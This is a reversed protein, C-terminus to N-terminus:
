NIQNIIVDIWQQQKAANAFRSPSKLFGFRIQRLLCHTQIAQFQEHINPVDNFTIRTIYVARLSPLANILEVINKWQHVQGDIYGDDFNNAQNEPVDVSHIIDAFDIRFQLMFHQKSPLQQNKLSLLAWCGPLLQWLYNRSRGYFFSPGDPIDPNFTGIILIETDPNVVHNRFKHLIIPM